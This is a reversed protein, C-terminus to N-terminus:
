QIWTSEFGAEQRKVIDVSDIKIHVDYDKMFQKYRNEVDLNEAECIKKYWKVGFRVHGLEEMIIKDLIQNIEESIEKPLFQNSKAKHILRPGADLGKAEHTMSIMCLRELLNNETKQLDNLINKNVPISTYPYGIVALKDYLLSYHTVEESIVCFIDEFFEIKENLNFNEYNHFRCLTDCYSIIASYEIHCLAHLM